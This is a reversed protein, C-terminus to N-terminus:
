QMNLTYAYDTMVNKMSFIIENDRFVFEHQIDTMHIIKQFHDCESMIGMGNVKTEPCFFVCRFFDTMMNLCGDM